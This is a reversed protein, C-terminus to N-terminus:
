AGLAQRSREGYRRYVASTSAVRLCFPNATGSLADARPTSYGVRLRVVFDNQSGAFQASLGVAQPLAICYVLLGSRGPRRGSAAKSRRSGSHIANWVLLEPKKLSGVVPPLM